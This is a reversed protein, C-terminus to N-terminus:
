PPPHPVGAPPHYALARIVSRSFSLAYPISRVKSQGRRRRYEIPTFRIRKGAKCAAITLGSTYSFGDSLVPTLTTALDKKFVRAGSNLDPIREGLFLFLLAQVVIKALKWAFPIEMTSLLRAGVNMDCDGAGIILPLICTPPYSADADIILVYDYSASEIGKKIAAGYGLNVGNRILRIGATTSLIDRTEDTSGDDVVIIEHELPLSELVQRIGELSERIGQQENYAPVVATLRPIM